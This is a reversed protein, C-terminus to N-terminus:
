PKEAIFPLAVITAAVRVHDSMVEVSAGVPAEQSRWYGMAIVKNLRPSMTGGTIWGLAKDGQFVPDNKKPVTTGEVLFGCLAKNVHGYTQIRAMVEQGPYCGKTYSIAEYQLGAEVPLSEEDFDVGYCPRGQEIRVIELARRGAPIMGYRHGISLLQEWCNQLNEREACLLYDSQGVVARKVYFIDKGQHNKQVFCKEPCSLVSEGLFDSMTKEASTGSILVKGWAMPEIKIKSRFKYRIFTELVKVPDASEIEVLIANPLAYLYFDAIIKGKATLLTTYIGRGKSLLAVDNSVLNQLFSVRDEGTVLLHNHHSLNAIIGVGWLANYEALPNGYHDIQGLPPNNKQLHPYLSEM